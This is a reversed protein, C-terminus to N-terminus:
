CTLTVSRVRSPAGNPSCTVVVMRCFFSKQTSWWPYLTSRLGDHGREASSSNKVGWAETCEASMVRSQGGEEGTM